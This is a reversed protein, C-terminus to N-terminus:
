ERAAKERMVGWVDSKRTSGRSRELSRMSSGFWPVVLRYWRDLYLALIVRYNAMELARGYGGCTANGREVGCGGTNQSWEPLCSCSASTPSLRVRALRNRSHRPDFPVRAAVSGVWM